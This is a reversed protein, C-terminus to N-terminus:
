AAFQADGGRREDPMCVYFGRLDERRPHRPCATVLDGFSVMGVLQGHDDEVPMLQIELIQMDLLVDEAHEAAHCTYVDRTM